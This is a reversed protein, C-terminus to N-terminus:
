KESFTYTREHFFVMCTICRGTVIKQEYRGVSNKIVVNDTSM